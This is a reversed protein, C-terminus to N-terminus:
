PYEYFIPIGRETAREIEHAVGKSKDWGDIMLVVMENCAELYPADQQKWFEGDVALGDPMELAVPHSHAIPCFTIRGERMMAAAKRCAARFRADRVALDSHTYPSALYVLSMGLGCDM